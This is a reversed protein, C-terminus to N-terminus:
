LVGGRSFGFLPLFDTAMTAFTAQAPLTGAGAEQVVGLMKNTNVTAVTTSWIKGAANSLSLGMYYAGPMLWVATGLTVVQVTTITTQATPGCSLVRLGSATFLGCDVNGAVANGNPWWLQRVPYATKMTLPLYIAVNAGPTWAVTAPLAAGCSDWAAGLCEPSWTAIIDKHLFLRDLDSM